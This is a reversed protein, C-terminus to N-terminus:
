LSQKASAIVKRHMKKEIKGKEKDSKKELIANNGKHTRFVTGYFMRTTAFWYKGYSDPM